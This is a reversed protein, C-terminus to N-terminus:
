KILATFYEILFLKPAILIKLWTINNSMVGISIILGIGVPLICGMEWMHYGVANRWKKISYRLWLITSILILIGLIFGILHTAFEWAMIQKILEPAQVQLVEVAKIIGTKTLEVLGTLEKLIYEKM